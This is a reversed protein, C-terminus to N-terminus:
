DYQNWFEIFHPEVKLFNTQRIKDLANLYKKFRLFYSLWNKDQPLLLTEKIKELGPQYTRNFEGPWPLDEKIDTLMHYAREKMKDNLVYFSLFEPQSVTNSFSFTCFDKYKQMWQWTSTINFINTAMTTFTICIESNQLNAYKFIMKELNSIKHQKGGRCYDYMDGVGEISIYLMVGEFQNLLNFFEDDNVTANTSIDITIQKNWGLEILKKLILKNRHEYTPEGGRLAVFRLDKYYEPFEFIKNILNQDLGYVGWNPNRLDAVETKALKKEDPIWGTSVAGRCHICKLNCKNSTSIDLYLFNPNNYDNIKPRFSLNYGNSDTVPELQNKSLRYMFFTNFFRRRSHGVLQEKRLCYECGSNKEKTLQDQRLKTWADGYWIEKISQTQLSGVPKSYLADPFVDGTPDITISKFPAICFPAPDIVQGPSYDIDKLLKSKTQKIM